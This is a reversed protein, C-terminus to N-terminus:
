LCPLVQKTLGRYRETNNRIRGFHLCHVFIQTKHRANVTICSCNKCLASYPIMNYPREQQRIEQSIVHYLRGSYSVLTADNVDRTSRMVVLALSTMESATLLGNEGLNQQM